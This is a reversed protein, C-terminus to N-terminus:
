TAQSVTPSEKCRGQGERGANINGYHYEGEALDFYFYPKKYTQMQEIMHKTGHSHGDWVAVLADANQRMVANRVFGSDPGREWKAPFTHLPLGHLQAYAVGHMDPSNPCMGSVVETIVIGAYERAWDICQFTFVQNVSRRSGAVIVRM